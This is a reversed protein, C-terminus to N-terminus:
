PPITRSFCIYGKSHDWNQAYTGMPGAPYVARPYSQKQNNNQSDTSFTACLQYTLDGTKNYEYSHRTEPDYPIPVGFNNIALEDFSKPLASKQQWYNEIQGQLMQLDNIRQQDIKLYRQEFPSGAIVFGGAVGGLVILSVIWVFIKEPQTFATSIKKIERLYYKFVVAAVLIVSLVKFVFRLTLGGSLFNYILLILSIIIVIAAVFLTFYLFWKQLRSERKEPHQAFDKNLLWVIFIHVPYIIVLSAIAWRASDSIGQPYYELVDPVFHNIYQFMLTIFNIASVILTGTMLLHLFVDKPHTKHSVTNEM